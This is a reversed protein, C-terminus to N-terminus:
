FIPLNAKEDNKSIIQQFRAKDMPDNTRAINIMEIIKGLREEKLNSDDTLHSEFNKLEKDVNDISAVVFPNEPLGQMEISELNLLIILSYISTKRKIIKKFHWIHKDNQFFPNIVELNKSWDILSVNRENYSGVLSGNYRKIEVIYIAKTTILISDIETLKDNDHKFLGGDIFVYNNKKAIDKLHLKTIDEFIKWKPKREFIDRSNSYSSISSTHQSKTKSSKSGFVIAIIIGITIGLSILILLVIVIEM